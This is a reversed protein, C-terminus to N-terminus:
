PAEFRHEPIGLTYCVRTAVRRPAEAQWGNGAASAGGDQSQEPVGMCGRAPLRLLATNTSELVDSFDTRHFAPATEATDLTCARSDVTHGRRRDTVTRDFSVRACS